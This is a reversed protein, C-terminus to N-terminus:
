TGTSQYHRLGFSWFRFALFLMLTAAFPAAFSFVPAFHLVGPKDLFYLAPLYNLFVLPILYTFVNQIWRPYINMPYSMLENGGYTVINVVEVPQVTWFILTGGMVFLAGMGAVISILVIPLYLVKALTWHIDALGMGVGFIIAGELFRGLRRILFKSSFVQLSINVPRLLMQDFKGLRVNQSFSDPDFGSFLMDMISFGMESLGAIFAMDGLTWGAINGFRELILALALFYSGNLLMTSLLDMFFSVRYEMQSRIQVSILTFYLKLSRRM